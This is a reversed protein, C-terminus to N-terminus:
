RSICNLTRAISSSKNHMSLGVAKVSLPPLFEDPGCLAFGIFIPMSTRQLYPITRWILHGRLLCAILAAWKLLSMTEYLLTYNSLMHQIAILREAHSSLSSTRSGRISIRVLRRELAAAVDAVRYKVEQKWVGSAKSNLNVCVKCRVENRWVIYTALPRCFRL